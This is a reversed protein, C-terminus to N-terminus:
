LQEVAPLAMTRMDRLVPFITTDNSTLVIKIAFQDFTNYTAGGSTYSISEFAEDEGFPTFEFELYDRSNRSFEVLYEKQIMKVWEKKELGEPDNNNRVKYYVHIGTGVPKYATVYTRLDASEFGENLTVTRSIYKCWAPGGSANTESSVTIIAGSGTGSVVSVTADELFGSGYAEFSIDVVHGTANTVAYAETDGNGSGTISLALEANAPYGSGTAVIKFDAPTPEANDIQNEFMAAGCREHWVVPSVDPNTTGMNIGLKFFGEYEEYDDTAAPYYTRGGEPILVVGAQIDSFVNSSDSAFDYTLSTGPLITQETHLMMEDVPVPYLGYPATAQMVSSSYLVARGAPEFRCKNIQFMLDELQTADWTTANQSKFISGVYPQESVINNTGIIKEGLESVFVEYDVSLSHIVLAYEGPPLYVPDSFYFTTKTAPNNVSPAESLKVEASQKSAKSGPVVFNSDPYGNVTPRIEVHVPQVPDKNAFFLDVSSVFMGQPYNSPEVWFSQALPDSKNHTLFDEVWYTHDAEDDLTLAYVVTDEEATSTNIKDVPVFGNVSMVM